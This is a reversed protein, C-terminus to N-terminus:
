HPAQTLSVLRWKEQTNLFESLRQILNVFAPTGAHDPLPQLWNRSRSLAVMPWGRRQAEVAIQFDVPGQFQARDREPRGLDTHFGLTRSGILNVAQDRPYDEWCYLVRCVTVQGEILGPHTGCPLVIAEVGVLAKRDYRDIAAIMYELFDPPYVINDSVTVVYGAPAQQILDFITANQIVKSAQPLPPTKGDRDASLILTDLPYTQNLLSSLAHAAPDYLSYESVMCVTVPQRSKPATARPTWAPYEIAVDLECTARCVNPLTQKIREALSDNQSTTAPEALMAQPVPFPRCEPRGNTRLDFRLSDAIRHWARYAQNYRWRAGNLGHCGIKFTGGVTLSDDHDLAVLTPIRTCIVRSSGLINRVRDLMESDASTRVTDFLGVSDLLTQRGIFLSTAKMRAAGGWRYCVSGDAAMRIENDCTAVLHPTADFIALARELRQPHCWDDSDMFTLFDGASQAIGQNKAFYTGCNQQLTIMRVRSDADACTRMKREDQASAGDIVIVLELNRHTQNLISAVATRMAPLWQHATMIVSVCRTDPSPRCEDCALSEFAFGSHVWSEALSALGHTAFVTNIWRLAAAHDNARRNIEFACLLGEVNPPVSSILPELLELANAATETEYVSLAGYILMESFDVRGHARALEAALLYDGEDFFALRMALWLLERSGPSHGLGRELLELAQDLNGTKAAAKAMLTITSEDDHQSVHLLGGRSGVAELDGQQWASLTYRHLLSQDRPLQSLLHRFLRDALVSLGASDLLDAVAALQFCDANVLETAVDHELIDLAEALRDQQKLRHVYNLLSNSDAGHDPM